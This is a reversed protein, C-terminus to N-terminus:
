QQSFGVGGEQNQFTQLTIMEFTGTAAKIMTAEPPKICGGAGKRARVRTGAKPHPNEVKSDLSAVSQSSTFQKRLGPKRSASPGPFTPTCCVVCPCVVGQKEGM